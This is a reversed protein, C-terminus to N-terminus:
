IDEFNLNFKEELFNNIRSLNNKLRANDKKIQENEIKLLRFNEGIKEMDQYNTKHFDLLKSKIFHFTESITLGEEMLNANVIMKSILDQILKGDKIKETQKELEEDKSMEKKDKIYDKVM